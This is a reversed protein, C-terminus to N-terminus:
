ISDLRKTTGTKIDTKKNLRSAIKFYILWQINKGRRQNRAM